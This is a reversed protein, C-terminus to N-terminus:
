VSARLLGQHSQPTEAPCAPSACLVACSFLLFLVCSRGDNQCQSHLPVRRRSDGVQAFTTFCLAVATQLSLLFFPASFNYSSLVSKYVMSIVISTCTYLLVPVPKLAKKNEDAM